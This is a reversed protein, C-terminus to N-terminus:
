ISMNNLEQNKLSLIFFNLLFYKGEKLIKIFSGKLRHM